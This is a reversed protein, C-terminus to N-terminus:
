LNVRGRSMYDAELDLGYGGERRRLDVPKRLSSKGRSNGTDSYREGVPACPLDGRECRSSGSSHESLLCRM